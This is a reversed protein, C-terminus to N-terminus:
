YPSIKLATMVQPTGQYEGIAVMLRGVKKPELITPHHKTKVSQLAEKIDKTPDADARSTAVAYCFM